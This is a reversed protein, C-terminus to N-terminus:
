QLSAAIAAQLDADSDSAGGRGGGGGPHGAGGSALIARQLEVDGQAAHARSAQMDADAAGLGQSELIARAVQEDESLGPSGDGARARAGGQEGRQTVDGDGDGDSEEEDYVVPGLPDLAEPTNSELRLLHTDPFINIRRNTAALPNELIYSNAMWYPCSDELALVFSNARFKSALRKALETLRTALGRGQAHKATSVYDIVVRRPTAIPAVGTAGGVQGGPRLLEVFPNGGTAAERAEAAHGFDGDLIIRLCAAMTEKGGPATEQVSLYYISCGKARWKDADAGPDVDTFERNLFATGRAFLQLSSGHTVVLEPRYVQRVISGPLRLRRQEGPAALVLEDDVDAPPPPTLRVRKPSSEVHLPALSMALAAALEEEDSM